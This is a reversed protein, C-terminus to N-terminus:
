RTERCHPAAARWSSRVTEPLSLVKPFFLLNFFFIELLLLFFAVFDGGGVQSEQLADAEAGAGRSHGRHDATPQHYKEWQRWKLHLVEHLPHNSQTDVRGGGRRGDEAAAPSHPQRPHTGAGQEACDAVRRSPHCLHLPRQRRLVPRNRPSSSIKRLHRQLSKIFKGSGMTGAGLVLINEIRPFNSSAENTSSSLQRSCNTSRNSSSSSSLGKLSLTTRTTGSKLSMLSRM